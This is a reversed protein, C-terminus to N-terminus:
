KKTNLYDSYEEETAPIWGSYSYSCNSLQSIYSDACFIHISDDRWEGNGASFHKKVKLCIDPLPNNAGDVMDIQKVYDPMDIKNREEWWELNKFISPYQRYYNVDGHESESCQKIDGIKYPSGPYDAIVKYRPKLLEEKSLM